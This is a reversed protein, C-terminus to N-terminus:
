ERYIIWSVYQEVSGDSTEVGGGSAVGNNIYQDCRLVTSGALVVRCDLYTWGGSVTTDVFSPDGYAQVAASTVNYLRLKTRNTKYCAARIHIRYSGALLTVQNGSIVAHSGTDAVETNLNRTVWTGSFTAFTQGAVGTAQQDALIMFGSGLTSTPVSWTGGANYFKGLAQDGIAAATVLGATGLVSGNDGVFLPLRAVAMTGTTINSAAQAILEDYRVSHGTATGAALGTLKHTGMAIDGSMTGGTLALFSSTLAANPAGLTTTLAALTLDNMRAADNTAASGAALGTIKSAGMAIAGTMTGGSKLLYGSLTIVGSIYASSALNAAIEQLAGEVTTATIYAGADNIGILSAGQGVSTSALQSTGNGSGYIAITVVTGVTQAPLTVTTTSTQTISSQPIFTTGSWALIFSAGATNDYTTVTFLTQAATATPTGISVLAYKLSGASTSIADVRSKVQNHGEVLDAVQTDLSACDFTEGNSFARNFYRRQFLPAIPLASM